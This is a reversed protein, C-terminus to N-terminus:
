STPYERHRSGRTQTGDRGRNRWIREVLVVHDFADLQQEPARRVEIAHQRYEQVRSYLLRYEQTGSSHYSRACPQGSRLLM